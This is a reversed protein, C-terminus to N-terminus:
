FNILFIKAAYFVAIQIVVLLLLIITMNILKSYDMYPITPYVNKINILVNDIKLIEQSASSFNSKIPMSVENITISEGIRDIVTKRSIDKADPLTIHWKKEAM